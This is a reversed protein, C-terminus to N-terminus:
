KVGIKNYQGMSGSREYYRQRGYPQPFNMYRGSLTWGPVQRMARGLMQAAVQDYRAGNGACEAWIQALCVFNRIEVNGNDDEDEFGGDNVPRDLWAAIRGAMADDPTEVRRSEQLRSAEAAADPDELYLPLDDKPQASRMARYLVMAEAWIQDVVRRFGEVDIQEVRCEVPWFRRGGTEDKLYTSDNTTGILISQRPFDTARAEYALRVRDTQRSIFAKISRVDARNFGSLEPMEVVFAGQLKEVMEKADHFNGELESYWHKGLARIFSSKRKGQLGELIVAHDFKAGPEHVRTVAGILMLRGVARSYANDEAGLYDIFLTEVRAIGDWKLSSLYERVPHFSNECASLAIASKLDQATVRVGYGGQTRPAELISRVAYDRVSSWIDGNRKDRVEWIPGDLQRIPKAQKEREHGKRGPPRRQVIEGTFSNLQPLGKLRVDNKVIFEFNHLTTKIVGKENLDYLSTWHLGQSDADASKAAQELADFPDSQPEANGGLLLDFPDSQPEGEEPEEDFADYRYTSRNDEDAWAIITAFSIPRIRQNRGFSKWKSRTLGPKYKPKTKSYEEWIELGEYGGRYQHHLATGIQYWYEYSVWRFEALQNLRGRIETDDLDTPEKSYSADGGKVHENDAGAAEIVAAPIYPGMGLAVMDFDFERLWVYPQGSDPHISPPMVVQKGTGYLEIEWTLHETGEPDTFKAGSHALMKSQFPKDTLFYIHRSEGCSGSRVCPLMEVPHDPFIEALRRWAESACEPKRIDVDFVHLYLGGVRSFEGLRVGVNYGSQYKSQLARLSYFPKTPWATEVPRKEREKLWHLAFGADVFRRIDVIMDSPAPAASSELDSHVTDAAAETSYELTM